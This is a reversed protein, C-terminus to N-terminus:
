SKAHDNSPKSLDLYLRDLAWPLRWDLASAGPLPRSKWHRIQQMQRDNNCLPDSLYPTLTPFIKHPRAPRNSRPIARGATEPAPRTAGARAWTQRSAAM